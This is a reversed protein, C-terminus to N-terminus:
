FNKSLAKVLLSVGYFNPHHGDGEDWSSVNEYINECNSLYKWGYTACFSKYWKKREKISSQVSKDNKWSPAAYYIKANPYKDRLLTDLKKFQTKIVAKSKMQHMDNTVGGVIIIRKVKNSDDLNKLLDYFKRGDRAFGYGWKRRVCVQNDKLGLNKKLQEPWRYKESYGKPRTSYSDGVMITTTTSHVKEYTKASVPLAFLVTLVSMLLLLLPLRKRM